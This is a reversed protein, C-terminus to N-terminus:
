MDHEMVIKLEAFYNFNDINFKTIHNMRLSSSKM